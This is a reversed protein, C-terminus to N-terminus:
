SVHCVPCLMTIVHDFVIVKISFFPCFVHIPMECFWFSSYIVCLTIHSRESFNLLVRSVTLETLDPATQTMRKWKAGAGIRACRRAVTSSSPYKDLLHFLGIVHSDNKKKGRRQQYLTFLRLNDLVLFPKTPPCDWVRTTPSHTSM